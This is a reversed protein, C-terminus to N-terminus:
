SESLGDITAMEASTLEFDLVDVNSEIRERRASKPIVVIGHQVHWRIIVQAASKGHAGAIGVLAPDDLRAARFPSYGELVVGRERMADLVGRDFQFPSWKIQNAAPAQGTAEILEDVQAVSYNSVGIARALGQKQAEIFVQWSDVGATGAPPWHILWLDVYPTGLKELSEELTQRERGVHDPPMKTTVFIQDRPVGSERLAAGVQSENRYGTATDIHRYGTELATHVASRAEDDRLQWTGFGLLPMRGGGPLAAVLDSTLGINTM